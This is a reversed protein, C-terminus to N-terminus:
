KKLLEDLEEDKVDFYFTNGELVFMAEHVTEGDDGPYVEIGAFDGFAKVAQYFVSAVTDTFDSYGLVFDSLIQQADRLVACEEYMEDREMEQRKRDLVGYVVACKSEIYYDM